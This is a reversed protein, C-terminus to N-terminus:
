RSPRSEPRGTSGISITPRSPLSRAVVRTKRPLKASRRLADRRCPSVARGEAVAMQLVGVASPIRMLHRSQAPRRHRNFRCPEPDLLAAVIASGGRPLTGGVFEDGVDIERAERDLPRSEIEHLKDM